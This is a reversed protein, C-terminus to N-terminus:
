YVGASRFRETVTPIDQRYSEGAEDIIRQNNLM